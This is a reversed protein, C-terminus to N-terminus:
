TQTENIAGETIKEIQKSKESSGQSTGFYFGVAVSILSVVYVRVEGAPAKEWLYFGGGVVIILALFKRFIGDTLDKITALDM